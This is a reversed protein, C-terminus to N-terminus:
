LPSQNRKRTKKGFSRKSKGTEAVKTGAAQGGPSGSKKANIVEMISGMEAILRVAEEESLALTFRDVISTIEAQIDPPFIPVRLLPKNMPRSADLGWQLDGGVVKTESSPISSYDKYEGLVNDLVLAPNNRFRMDDTNARDVIFGLRELKRRREKYREQFIRKTENSFDAVLHAAKDFAAYAPLKELAKRAEPLFKQAMAEIVRDLVGKLQTRRTVTMGQKSSM